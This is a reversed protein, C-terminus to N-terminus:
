SVPMKIKFTTGNESTEKILIDGKLNNLYNKAMYLGLGMGSSKTSFSEDFILKLVLQDITVSQDSVNLYLGIPDHM